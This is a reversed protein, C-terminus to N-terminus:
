LVLGWALGIGLVLLAAAWLFPLFRGTMRLFRGPNAFRHLSRGGAPRPPASAGNGATLRGDV